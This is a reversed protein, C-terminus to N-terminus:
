HTISLWRHDTHFRGMALVWLQTDEVGCAQTDGSLNLSCFQGSPSMMMLFSRARSSLFPFNHMGAGPKRRPDAHVLTGEQARCRMLNEGLIEVASAERSHDTCLPARRLGSPLLRFGVGATSGQVRRQRRQTQRYSAPLITSGRGHATQLPSSM